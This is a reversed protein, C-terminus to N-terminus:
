GPKSLCHDRGPWVRAKISLPRARAVGQSQYVTTKGQGCGPKSLSHDRGPWVRAKISLPRARAVGQGCGPKTLCHNLGPWLDRGGVPGRGSGIELEPVSGQGVSAM